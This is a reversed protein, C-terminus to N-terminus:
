QSLKRLIGVNDVHISCGLGLSSNTVELNGAVGSIRISQISKTVSHGGALTHLVHLEENDVTLVTVPNASNAFNALQIHAGSTKGGFVSVVRFKVSLLKDSRPKDIRVFPNLSIRIQALVIWSELTVDGSITQIACSVQSTIKFGTINLGSASSIVLDLNTTETNLEVLDIAVQALVGQNPIVRNLSKHSPVLVFLWNKYAINNRLQVFPGLEELSLTQLVDFVLSGIDSRGLNVELTESTHLGLDTIVQLASQRSICDWSREGLDGQFLKRKVRVSLNVLGVQGERINRLLSLIGGLLVKLTPLAQRGCLLGNGCVPRFENGTEVGLGDGGLVVEEIKTAVTQKGLLHKQNHSLGNTGIDGDVSKILVWTESTETGLDIPLKLASCDLPKRGLVLGSLWRSNTGPGFRDYEKSTSCTEEASVQDLINQLTGAALDLENSMNSTDLVGLTGKSTEAARELAITHPLVLPYRAQAANNTIQGLWIKSDLCRNPGVQGLSNVHDNVVTGSNVPDLSICVHLGGVDIRGDVSHPKAVFSLGLGKRKDARRTNKIGVVIDVERVFLDAGALSRNEFLIVHHTAANTTGNCSWAVNETINLGTNTVGIVEDDVRDVSHGHVVNGVYHYCTREVGEGTTNM